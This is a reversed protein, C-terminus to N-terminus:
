ASAKARLFLRRWKALVAALSFIWVVGLTAPGLILERIQVPPIPGNGHLFFDFIIFKWLAAYSLL